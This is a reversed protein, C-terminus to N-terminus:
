PLRTVWRPQTVSDTAPLHKRKQYAFIEDIDPNHQLAPANYANALVGIWANPYRARLATLLPTTCVLDGINDRRIILFQM